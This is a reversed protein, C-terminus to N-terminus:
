IAQLQWIKHDNQGPSFSIIVVPELLWCKFSIVKCRKQYFWKSASTFPTMTPSVQADVAKTKIERTVM